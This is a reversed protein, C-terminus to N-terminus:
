KQWWKWTAEQSGNPIEDVIANVLRGARREIRIVYVTTIVRQYVDFQVPGRPPRIRTIAARLADRLQTKDGLEGKLSEVAAIVLQPSTHGLESYRTPWAGSNRREYDAV